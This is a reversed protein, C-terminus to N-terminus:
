ASKKHNIFKVISNITKFNKLTIEGPAIKINNSIQLEQVLQMAGISDILGSLFLNDEVGLKVDQDMVLHEKIYALIEESNNM